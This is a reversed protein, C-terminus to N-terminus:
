IFKNIKKNKVKLVYKAIQAYNEDLYEVYVWGISDYGDKKRPILMSNIKGVKLLEEKVDNYVLEYEEDDEIKDVNIFNWLKLM